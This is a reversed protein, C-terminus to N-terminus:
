FWCDVYVFHLGLNYLVLCSSPAVGGGVDVGCYRGDWGLKFLVIGLTGYDGHM